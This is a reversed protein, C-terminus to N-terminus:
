KFGRRIGLELGLQFLNQSLPAILLKTLHYRHTVVGFFQLRNKFNYNLGMGINTSFSVSKFESVYSKTYRVTSASESAQKRKSRLYINSSVGLEIFPSISNETFEYRGIIPIEIFHHNIHNRLHESYSSAGVPYSWKIGSYKAGIFGFNAFRLGSKLFVKNTLKQNYDFGFRYNMKWSEEKGLELLLQAPESDENAYLHRYSYDMSLMIAVSSNLQGKALIPLSSLILILFKVQM